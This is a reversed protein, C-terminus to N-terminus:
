NAAMPNKLWQIDLWGQAVAIGTVYGALGSETGTGPKKFAGPHRSFVICFVAAAQRPEQLCLGLWSQKFPKYWAKRLLDCGPHTM